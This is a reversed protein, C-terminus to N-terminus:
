KEWDNQNTNRVSLDSRVSIAGRSEVTKRTETEYYDDRERERIINKEPPPPKVQRTNVATTTPRNIV